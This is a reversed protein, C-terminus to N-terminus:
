LTLAGDDLEELVVHVRAQLFGHAHLSAVKQQKCSVLRFDGIRHETRQTQAHGIREVNRTFAM